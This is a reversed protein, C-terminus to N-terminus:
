IVGIARGALGVALWLVLSLVAASKVVLERGGNQILRRQVAFYFLVALGLFLMKWRFALNYYCKMPEAAVLLVGSIVSVLLGGFLLPRLEHAIRAAPQSILGFGILRLNVILIAGGLLALSLLHVMEMVEFAYSSQQMFVGVPTGGLWEFLHPLWM